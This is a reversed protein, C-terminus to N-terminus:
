INQLNGMNLSLYAVYITTYMYGLRLVGKTFCWLWVQDIKTPKLLSPLDM